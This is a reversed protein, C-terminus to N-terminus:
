DLDDDIDYFMKIVEDLTDMIVYEQINSYKKKLNNRRYRQQFMAINNIIFQMKSDIVISNNSVEIDKISM